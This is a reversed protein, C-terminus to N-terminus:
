QGPKSFLFFPFSFSVCRLVCGATLLGVCLMCFSVCGAMLLGRMKLSVFKGLRCLDWLSSVSKVSSFGKALVFGVMESSFRRGSAFGNM